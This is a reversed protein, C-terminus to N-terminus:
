WPPVNEGGGIPRNPRALLEARCAGWGQISLVGYRSSSEAHMIEALETTSCKSQMRFTPPEIGESLNKKAWLGRQTQTICPRVPRGIPPRAQGGGWCYSAGGRIPRKTTRFPRPVPWSSPPVNCKKEFVALCHLPPTRSGFDGVLCFFFV